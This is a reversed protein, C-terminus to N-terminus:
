NDNYDIKVYSSHASIFLLGDDTPTSALTISIDNWDDNYNHNM